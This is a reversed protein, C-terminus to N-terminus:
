PLALDSVLPRLQATQQRNVLWALYFCSWRHLKVFKTTSVIQQVYINGTADVTVDTFVLTQLLVIM